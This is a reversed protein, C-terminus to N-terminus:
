VVVGSRGATQDGSVLRLHRAARDVRCRLDVRRVFVVCRAQELAMRGDAREIFRDLSDLRAIWAVSLADALSVIKGAAM